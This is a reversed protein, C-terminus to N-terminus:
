GNEVQDTVLTQMEVKKQFVPTWGMSVDAEVLSVGTDGPMKDQEQQGARQM